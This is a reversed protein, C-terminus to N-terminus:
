TQGHESLFIACFDIVQPFYINFEQSFQQEQQELLASASSMNNTYPTRKSLGTLAREIGTVNQYSGLWDSEVMKEIILQSFRPMLYKQQLLQSYIDEIFDGFEHDMYRKWNKCLLYDYFVDLVVGSFKGQSPRIRTKSEKVVPHSDMFNDIARHMKIGLAIDNPYNQFAKGKVEDGIFNGLLCKPDHRSLVLHALYNM